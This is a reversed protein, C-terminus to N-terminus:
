CANSGYKFALAWRPARANAGLVHRQNMRDLKIVAGDTDFPLFPRTRGFRSVYALIGALGDCAESQATALGLARIAPRSAQYSAGALEVAGGHVVFRLVSEACPTSGLLLGSAADRATAYCPPLGAFIERPMFVEGHVELVPPVKGRLQRPLNRIAGAHRTVDSGEHGDGRTALSVLRGREYRAALSLGDIKPECIYIISEGPLAAQIRSVFKAIGEPGYTHSLSLMPSAHRIKPLSGVPRGAVRQTPSAPTVSEPHRAELTVLRTLLADYEGDSIGTSSQAYYAEDHRSIVERLTAIETLM